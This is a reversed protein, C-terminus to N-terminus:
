DNNGDSSGGTITKIDTLIQGTISGDFLDDVNQFNLHFVGNATFYNGDFTTKSRPGEDTTAPPILEARANVMEPKGGEDFEYTYVVKLNGIISNAVRKIRQSQIEM